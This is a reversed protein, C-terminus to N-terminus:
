VVFDFVVGAALAEAHFGAEASFMGLRLRPAPAIEAARGGVFRVQVSRRVTDPPFHNKTPGITLVVVLVVVVM